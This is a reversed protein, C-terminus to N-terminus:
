RVGGVSLDMRQPKIAALWRIGRPCEVQSAIMAAVPETVNKLWHLHREGFEVKALRGAARRTVESVLVEDGGAATCLRAAVNVTMGYWDNARYVAPGTHMGVRVPPFGPVADLERVIGLGLRVAAGADECRLMLADGLTKLEEARHTPLLRRVREYFEIAVEAGRDDGAAATLATFGVLDSFLFTSPPTPLPESSM